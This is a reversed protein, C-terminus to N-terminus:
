KSMQLIKKKKKQQKFDVSKRVIMMGKTMSTM